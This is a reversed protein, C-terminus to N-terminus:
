LYKAASCRQPETKVINRCINRHAAGKHNQKSPLEVFIATRQV